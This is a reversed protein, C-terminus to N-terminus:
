TTLYLCFCVYRLHCTFVIPLVMDQSNTIDHFNSDSKSNIKKKEM